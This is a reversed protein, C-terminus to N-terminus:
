KRFLDIIALVTSSTTIAAMNYVLDWPDTSRYSALREQTLELAYALMIGSLIVFVLNRWKRKGRFSGHALFPYPLFMCFHVLKDTAFGWLSRPINATPSINAYYLFGIFVLYIVFLILIITHFTGSKSRSM